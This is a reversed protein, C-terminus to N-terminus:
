TMFMAPEVQPPEVGPRRSNRTSRRCRSGPSCRSRPSRRSGPRCSSGPRCRSWAVGPALAVGPRLAVGPALRHRPPARAGRLGTGGRGRGDHVPHGVLLPLVPVTFRMQRLRRPITALSESIGGAAHILSLTARHIDITRVVGGIRARSSRPQNTASRSMAATSRGVRGRENELMEGGGLAHRLARDYAVRCSECPNTQSAM